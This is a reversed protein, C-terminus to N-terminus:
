LQRVAVSKQSGNRPLYRGLIDSIRDSVAETDYSSDLEVVVRTVILLQMPGENFSNGQLMNGSTKRDVAVVSRIKEVKRITRDSIHKKAYLDFELTVSM